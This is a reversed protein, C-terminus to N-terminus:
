SGGSLAGAGAFEVGQLAPEPRRAEVAAPPATRSRILSPWSYDPVRIRQVAVGRLASALIEREEARLEEHSKGAISLHPALSSYPPFGYADETNELLEDVAARHPVAETLAPTGREIVYLNEMQVRNGVVCAVLDTVRYKPPPVIAQVVSNMSMIPLNAAGLKKGVSRGERSHLRSQWSLSLRQHKKLSHQPVARLTHASITLPKPYRSATGNRDIIVMDDSYFVGGENRLMTLITSTKGTDTKASLMVTRDGITVCAAHLLMRGKSVLAFRLLPEVVNTYLVHPSLALLPSATIVIPQEMDVSFNAFLAGLHERYEIRAASRRVSVHTQPVFGGVPRTRIVIDPAAVSDTRFFELEPLRVSSGLRALGDIDYQHRYAHRSRSNMGLM